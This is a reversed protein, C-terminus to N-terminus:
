SRKIWELPSERPQMDAILTQESSFWKELCNYSFHSPFEVHQIYMSAKMDRVIYM